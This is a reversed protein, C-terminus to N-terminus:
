NITKDEQKSSTVARDCRLGKHWQQVRATGSSGKLAGGIVSDQNPGSRDEAAGIIEVV